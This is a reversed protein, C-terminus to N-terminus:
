TGVVGGYAESAGSATMTYARRSTEESGGSVHSRDEVSRGGRIVNHCDVLENPVITDHTRCSTSLGSHTDRKAATKRGYQNYLKDGTKEGATTQM